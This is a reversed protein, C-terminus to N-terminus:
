DTMEDDENTSSKKSASPRKLTPKPRATSPAASSSSGSTMQLSAIDTALGDGIMLRHELLYARGKAMSLDGLNTSPNATMMAAAVIGSVRKVDLFACNKPFYHTDSRAPEDYSPEVFSCFRKGYMANVLRLLMIIRYDM